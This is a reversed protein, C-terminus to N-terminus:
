CDRQQPPIKCLSGEPYVFIAAEVPKNRPFPTFIRGLYFQLVCFEVYLMTTGLYEGIMAILHDRTADTLAEFPVKPRNGQPKTPELIVPQRIVLPAEGNNGTRTMEIRTAPLSMKAPHHILM